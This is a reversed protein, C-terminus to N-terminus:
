PKPFREAQEEFTSCVKANCASGPVTLSRAVDTLSHQCVNSCHAIQPWDPWRGDPRSAGM